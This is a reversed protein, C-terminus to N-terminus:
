AQGGNSESLRPPRPPPSHIICVTFTVLTTLPSKSIVKRITIQSKNPSKTSM